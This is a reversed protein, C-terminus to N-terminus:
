FVRYFKELLNATLTTRSHRNLLLLDNEASGDVTRRTYRHDGDHGIFPIARDDTYEGHIIVLHVHDYKLVGEEVEEIVRRVDGLGLFADTALIVVVNAKDHPLQDQEDRMKRKLRVTDNRKITPGLLGCSLGRETSWPDLLRAKQDGACLAMELIGEERVFVITRENLARVANTKIRELIVALVPKSPTNYWRGSICLNLSIRCVADFVASSADAAERMMQPPTQKAVELFVTEGTVPDDLRLDPQRQNDRVDMTPEFRARLGERVLRSALKILLADHDFQTLDHLRALVRDLNQSRELIRLYGAFRVIGRRSCPASNALLQLVPHRAVGPEEGTAKWLFDQGLIRQLYQLAEKAQDKELPKIGEIRELGEIHHKWALFQVRFNERSPKRLSQRGGRGRRPSLGSEHGANSIV